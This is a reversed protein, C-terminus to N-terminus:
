VLSLLVSVLRDPDVEQTETEGALPSEIIRTGQKVIEDFDVAYPYRILPDYILFDIKLDSNGCDNWLLRHLESLAGSATLGIMEPDHFTNPIFVKPCTNRAIARGIGAPLLNAAVSSYFSGIPFVILEASSILEELEEDIAPAEQLPAGGFRTLFIRKVPKTIPAVEKGSLLHQGTLVSGDALEFGLECCQDLVPKVIGRVAVLRSFLYLVPDLNRSNNLYGGTIVLNGISAGQLPFDSGMNDIFYRLHNCIITRMEGPVAEVLMDKGQAMRYLEQRLEIDNKDVPLRYAFLRYISPNGMVSLDALAMLRNRLDGVSPMRFADRLKASSGGSDFATIIHISNHTYNIIRKSMEKLASGGSFFLIKPGLEPMKRCRAIRINDPITVRRSVFLTM